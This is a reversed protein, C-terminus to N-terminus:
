SLVLLGLFESCVVLGRFWCGSRVFTVERSEPKRWFSSLFLTNVSKKEGEDYHHTAVSLRPSFDM